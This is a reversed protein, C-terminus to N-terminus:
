RSVPLGGKRPLVGASFILARTSPSAGETRLLRGSTGGPTPLTAACISARSGVLRELVGPTTALANVGWVVFPRWGGSLGAGGAGASQSTAGGGDGGGATRD